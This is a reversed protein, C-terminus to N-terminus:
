LAVAVFWITLKRKFISRLKGQPCILFDRSNVKEDINAMIYVNVCVAFLLWEVTDPVNVFCQLCAPNTPLRGFCPQHAPDIHGSYCVIYKNHGYVM